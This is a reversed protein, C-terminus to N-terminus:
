FDALVHVMVPGSAPQIVGRSSPWPLARSNIIFPFMFWTEFPFGELLQQSTGSQVLLCQYGSLRASHLCAQNQQQSSEHSKLLQKQGSFGSFHRYVLLFLELQSTLLSLGSKWVAEHQLQFKNSVSTPTNAHREGDSIRTILESRIVRSRLTVTLRTRTRPIRVPFNWSLQECPFSVSRQSSAVEWSMMTNTLHGGRAHWACRRM